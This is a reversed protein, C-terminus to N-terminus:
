VGFRALLDHEVAENGIFFSIQTKWLFLVEWFFYSFKEVLFFLKKRLQFFSPIKKLGFNNWPWRFEDHDPRLHTKSGRIKFYIKTEDIGYPERAWFTRSVGYIFLAYIKADFSYGSKKKLKSFFIKELEFFLENKKETGLFTRPFFDFIQGFDSHQFFWM